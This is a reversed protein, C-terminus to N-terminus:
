MICKQALSCNVARSYDKRFITSTLSIFDTRIKSRFSVNLSIVSSIHIFQSQDTRSNKFLFVILFPLFFHKQMISSICNCLCLSSVTANLIRFGTIAFVRWAESSTEEGISNVYVQTVATLPNYANVVREM